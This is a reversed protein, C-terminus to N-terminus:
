HVTVVDFDISIGHTKILFCELYDKPYGREIMKDIFEKLTWNRNIACELIETYKPFLVDDDVWGGLEHIAWLVCLEDILGAVEDKNAKSMEM